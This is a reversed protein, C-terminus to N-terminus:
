EVGKEKAYRYLHELKVRKNPSCFTNLFNGLDKEKFRCTSEIKDVDNWFILRCIPQSDDKLWIAQFQVFCRDKKNIKDYAYLDIIFGAIYNKYLKYWYIEYDKIASEESLIIEAQDRRTKYKVRKYDCCVINLIKANEGDSMLYICFDNKYFFLNPSVEKLKDSDKNVHFTWAAAFCFSFSLLFSIVLFKKM